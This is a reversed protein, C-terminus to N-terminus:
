KKWKGPRNRRCNKGEADGDRILQQGAGVHQWGKVFDTNKQDDGSM